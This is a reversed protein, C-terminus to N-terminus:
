QAGEKEPVPSNVALRASELFSSREKEFRQVVADTDEDQSAAATGALDALQDRVREFAVVVPHSDALRLRLRQGMVHVESAWAAPDTAVGPTGGETLSMLRVNTAGPALLRAAEDLVGRLEDQRVRALDRNFQRRATHAAARVTLQPGVVGSIVIGIGSIVLAATASDATM